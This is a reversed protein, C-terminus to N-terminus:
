CRAGVLLVLQVGDRNMVLLCWCAADDVLLAVLLAVLVLVMMVLSCHRAGVILLWSDAAMVLVLALVGGPTM